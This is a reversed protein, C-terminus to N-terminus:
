LMTMPMLRKWQQHSRSLPVNMFTKIMKILPMYFVLCYFREQKPILILVVKEHLIYQGDGSLTVSQYCCAFLM